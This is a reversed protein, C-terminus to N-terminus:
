LNLFERTLMEPWQLLLLVSPIGMDQQKVKVETEPSTDSSVSARLATLHQPEAATPATHRGTPIQFSAAQAMFTTM